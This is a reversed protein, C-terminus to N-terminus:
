TEIEMAHRQLFEDVEDRNPCGARGSGNQVKLAAAASAFRMADASPQGEALALAFAGHWVDGAGLTDRVAVNFAPLSTLQGDEVALVGESGLTVCCSADTQKSVQRIAKEPDDIGSFDSLGRASFAVHTAARVLEGDKPVPLDADLVAPLELSRALRLGLLAGEPWRTDALIAEADIPAYADLWQPDADMSSDLYNVITREGAGDVLVASVSSQRGEMRRVLACDVGYHELELAILNALLDDGVRTALQAAGGLRSVAVAATAAPGGGLTEFGSARYKEAATPMADVSFVFDQVAHGICFVKAM